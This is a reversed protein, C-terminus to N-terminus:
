RGGRGAHVVSRDTLPAALDVGLRRDWILHLAQARAVAPVETGAVLAGFEMPKNRVAALLVPQLGLPDTLPRRQASVTDLTGQVHPRWGPVVAYRWGCSLAIESAAAFRVRDEAKIREGPRVDILWPGGRTVALFDPVHDGPGDTSTFTVRFPQSLVEILEGAFDLALLLQQEAHSEFGHHRGTSVMYQLGPRHFQSTRWSFRRVPQAGRVPLSALDRVPYVVPGGDFKWRTSWRRAWEPGLVLAGRGPALVGVDPALLEEWRCRDSPLERLGAGEALSAGSKYAIDLLDSVTISQGVHRVTFRLVQDNRGPSRGERFPDFAQALGGSEGLGFQGFSCADVAGVVGFDFGAEM